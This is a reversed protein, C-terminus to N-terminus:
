FNEYSLKLNRASAVKLGKKLYYLAILQGDLAIYEGPELDINLLGNDDMAESLACEALDENSISDWTKDKPLLFYSVPGKAKSKSLDLYAELMIRKTKNPLFGEKEKFALTPKAEEEGRYDKSSYGLLPRDMKYEIAIKPNGSKFYEIYSGNRLGGSYNSERKVKGNRYYILAKGDLKGSSYHTEKWIKGNPYFSKALGEKLGDQYNIETKVKTSPNTSSVLGNKKQEKKPKAKNEILDEKETSLASQFEQCASFIILVLTLKLLRM